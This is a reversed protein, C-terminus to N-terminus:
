VLNEIALRMNSYDLSGSLDCDIAHFALLNEQVREEDIHVTFIEM